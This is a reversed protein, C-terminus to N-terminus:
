VLTRNKTDLHRERQLYREFSAESRLHALKQAKQSSVLRGTARWLFIVDKQIEFTLPAGVRLIKILQSFTEPWINARTSYKLSGSAWRATSSRSAAIRPCYRREKNFKLRVVKQCLVLSRQLPAFLESFNLIWRLPSETSCLPQSLFWLLSKPASPPTDVFLRDSRQGEQRSASFTRHIKMLVQHTNIASIIEYRWDARM